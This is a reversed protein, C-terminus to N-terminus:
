KGGAKGGGRMVEDLLGTIKACHALFPFHLNDATKLFQADPRLTQIYEAERYPIIRDRRSHFIGLPYASARLADTLDHQYLSQLYALASSRNNIFYKQLLTSAALDSGLLKHFYKVARPFDQACLASFTKQEDAQRSFVAASNILLVGGLRDKAFPATATNQPCAAHQAYLLALQGGLSWGVLIPEFINKETLFRRLACVAQQYADGARVLPPTFYYLTRGAFYEAFNQFIEARVNWGPIFVISQKPKGSQPSSRLATKKVKMVKMNVKM